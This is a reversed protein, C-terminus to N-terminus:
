RPAASQLAPVDLVDRRDEYIATFRGGQIELASARGGQVYDPNMGTDIQIVKGGFRVRIRGTPTITHGVVIARAQQASLISDVSPAFEDPEQALGRYWLPGDERTSLMEQPPPSPRATLERRVTENIEDCSTAAVAPSIGGHLFVVGNIRAVVDLTRFWRGYDGRPGFAIQLEVSGLPLELPPAQPDAAKASEVVRQRLEESDRTVFAQYEGASVYRLDGLMRMVEHNGLLVHVAGKKSAAERELRRLLDLIKRSDAGRDLLDGVQVLHTQGGSWRQRNDILGATKLIGVYRDYAGHADGIAVIREVGDIGCSAARLAVGSPPALLWTALFAAAFAALHRSNFM